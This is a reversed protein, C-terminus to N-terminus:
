SVLAREAVAVHMLAFIAEIGLTCGQFERFIRRTGSYINMEFLFIILFAPFDTGFKLIM